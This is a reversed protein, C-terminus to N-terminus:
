FFKGDDSIIGYKRVGNETSSVVYYGDAEYVSDFVPEYVQNGDLDVLGILYQNNEPRMGDEKYSGVFPILLKHDEPEYVTDEDSTHEKDDYTESVEAETAAYIYTSKEISKDKDPSCGSAIATILLVASLAFVIKKLM